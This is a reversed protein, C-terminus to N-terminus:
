VTLFINLKNFILLLGMIIILFGGIKKKKNIEFESKDIGKQRLDLIYDDVVSKLRRPDKSLGSVLAYSYDKQALYGGNLNGM